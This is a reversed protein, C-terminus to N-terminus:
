CWGGNIIVDLFVLKCKIMWLKVDRFKNEGRGGGGKSLDLYCNFKNFYFEKVVM